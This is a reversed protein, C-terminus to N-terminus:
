LYDFRANCPIKSKKSKKSKQSKSKRKKSSKKAPAKKLSKKVGRTRSKSQVRRRKKAPEGSGSMSRIAEDSLNKLTERGRKRFADKFSSNHDAVDSLINTSSKLLEKGLFPLSKKILPMAYRAIGSLFSGIGSGRQYLQGAYIDGGHGAQNLYYSTMLDQEYKRDM